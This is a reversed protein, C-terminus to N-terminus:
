RCSILCLRLDYPPVGASSSDHNSIVFLKEIDSVSVSVAIRNSVDDNVPVICGCTNGTIAAFETGPASHKHSLPQRQEIFHRLASADVM